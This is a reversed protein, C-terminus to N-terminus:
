DIPTEIRVSGQKILDAFAKATQYEPVTVPGLDTQAPIFWSGKANTRAINRLRYKRTYSPLVRGPAKPHTFQTFYSNWMRVFTRKTGSCPLVFPQWPPQGDVLLYVEYSRQLEDGNDLIVKIAKEPVQAKLEAPLGTAPYKAVFGQRGAMWRVWTDELGCAIVDITDRFPDRDGRLWFRGAEAGVQYAPDRPNCVPSNSQITYGLPTLRDEVLLSVAGGGPDKEALALVEDSPLATSPPDSLPTMATSNKPKIMTEHEKNSTEHDL